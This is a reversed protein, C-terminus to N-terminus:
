IKQVHCIENMKQWLLQHGELVIRNDSRQEEYLILTRHIADNMKSFEIRNAENIQIMELRLAQIEAKLESHVAQIEARLSTQVAGIEMRVTTIESKLEDRVSHLEKRSPLQDLVQASPIYHLLKAIKKTTKKKSPKAKQTLKKMQFTVQKAIPNKKLSCNSKPSAFKIGYYLM